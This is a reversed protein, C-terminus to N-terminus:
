EIVLEGVVQNVDKYSTVYCKITVEDGPKLDKTAENTKWDKPNSLSYMGSASNYSLSGETATCGYVLIKNTGDSIYFNGYDGGDTANNYWGDIKGTVQYLPQAVGSNEPNEAKVDVKLLDAITTEIVEGETFEQRPAYEIDTIIGNLEKTGKYDCRTALMTVTDGILIKATDENKKWDKPNDFTWKGSPQFTLAGETSTAGYVLIEEDPNELDQLYFNGYDGGDNGSSWRSVKGTIIYIQQPIANSDFETANQEAVTSEIPDPEVAPAAVTLEVTDKVEGKDTNVTVTVTTTGEGMPALYLGQPAVVKDNATTIVVSGDILAERVNVEAGEFELDLMRQATLAYWPEEGLEEKNTISVGTVGTLVPKEPEPTPEPTQDCSTLGLTGFAMAGLALLSVTLLKGRFKRSM